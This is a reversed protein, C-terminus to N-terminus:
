DDTLRAQDQAAGTSANSGIVALALLLSSVHRHRATPIM